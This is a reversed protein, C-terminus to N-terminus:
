EEDDSKEESEHSLDIPSDDNAVAEVREMELLEEETFEEDETEEVHDVIAISSVRQKGDLKIIRVGQTNRGAIKVQTLPTRIVIGGLTIVLLDEIGDVARVSVLEGIKANSKITLVGKTGRKTLRYESFESMKGYGKDTIALIYKGALSTTVGIVKSGDSVNMGKVGSANRGMSRVDNEHFKVMKGNDAALGVVTDGDTLKVALLMDDEKLGIAIKGNQRISAFETIPTRKVIGKETVFFLFHDDKYADVPIIAKVSENQDVNLLNVVPIGKSNRGLEPVQYGRLRYVKGFDTFFLLDTHTKAYLMIEVVDNENTMMGRVGRGGRNQTRFTDPPLRKVYGSKTLTIVVDQVPILDEDDITALEDSIITRREDGFKDKIEELEKIIVEIINERDQLIFKDKEISARLQTKEAELKQTEIGTLRGLSMALIAKVQLESLSYKEMLTKSAAEPTKSAKIIDVLEDINDHCILLGEVIHMRDEDKKLLYKTRREIVHVQFELYARLMETIPLVKPAGEVLCLNIIGYSTQLQTNKYLQNLIVEPVVDRRLEIVVRIGDKNSEDRIDTIGDVIKDRVLNAINEIMNAKNVQYPIESIIIRSKGREAEEIEAKSRIVISGNGRTYADRIGRRGLISGGTPFDPGHIYNEEIEEPTILPNRALAIVGDIVEGLNHPPINTAMGVAIGNSGNVLLNPFRSPLVSPEIETGDYNDVFDVTDCNIDRVMELALKAMRAETYRMAAAEDGDVSGFNGHGDVLTYRMSFPQALRVLTQYIASDGHPHYKGMVDGVIRACKKYPKDPQMGAENMGYIIRRHVPKFGDRSDPIARAVIVSMAYDLFSSQVQAVIETNQLGPVIGDEIEELTKEREESELEQVEEESLMKEKDDSM